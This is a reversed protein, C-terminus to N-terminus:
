LEVHYALANMLKQLGVLFCTWFCKSGLETCGVYGFEVIVPYMMCRLAVSVLLLVRM